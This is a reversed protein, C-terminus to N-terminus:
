PEVLLEGFAEISESNSTGLYAEVVTPDNRIEEPTGEAIKRGFELVIIRSCLSMVFDMNHEVVVFGIGWDTALHRILGSLEIREKADLGAAPEDLLVISPSKSLTRAIAVLRRKGYPIDRARIELESQLGFERIAATAGPTLDEVLRGSRSKSGGAIALNERISVDEFLELSQFSRTVGRESRQAARLKDLCEGNLELTGTYPVFGSIADILTTKGAGNPGIIGLVEGPRAVLSLGDLATTGGFRVTLDTTTLERQDVSPRVIEGVVPTLEAPAVPKRRLKRRLGEALTRYMEANLGAVGEPAQLLTALLLIGGVLPVYATVTESSILNSVIVAGLAGSAFTAGVVSGSAYGLGGIVAYAMLLYSNSYDFQSSYEINTQSFALIIGGLAALASGVAFAALKTRALSVGISAAARENTRVAIFRGGLRSRRLRAVCLAGLVFFVLAFVAYRKPSAIPDIGIGLFSRNEGVNTGVFGGTLSTNGFLMFQIVLGIGLTAIALNIGRLRVAPLAILAGVPVTGLVGIILALTFSVHDASVLRGAFYAGVGALAFQCLSLQGAYGSVVVISLIVLGMGFTVTFGNTWQLPLTFIFVLSLVVGFAVFPWRIRGNGLEPLRQLTSGRTPLTAGRSMLWLVIVIVPVSNALGTITTYRGLVSEVAGIVLGAILTVPFSRFNAVLAVALAAIVVNTLSAVTLTVVPFLLVGALGGFAAGLVWNAGAIRDPSWGLAAAARQNEAVASTALGFSTKKYVLWLVLTVLIAVGIIVLQDAGISIQSGLQVISQSYFSPVILIESGYIILLFSQIVALVGLTAVLRVLASSNRLPRMILYYILGGLVGAGIVAIALSVAFPLNWSNDHLEYFAYAAAAGIAGQSFNVVGSGRYILVIGQGSLAYLGGLGLGLVVFQIFTM